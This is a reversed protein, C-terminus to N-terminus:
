QFTLVTIQYNKWPYPCQILKFSAIIPYKFLNRYHSIQVAKQDLSPPIQVFIKWFNLHGPAISSSRNSQYM